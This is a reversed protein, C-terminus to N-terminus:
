GLLANIEATFKKLRANSYGAPVVFKGSQEDIILGSAYIIRVLEMDKENAASFVVQGEKDIMRNPKTQTSPDFVERGLYTLSMMKFIGGLYTEAIEPQNGSGLVSTTEATLVTYPGQGRPPIEIM